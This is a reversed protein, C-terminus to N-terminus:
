ASTSKQEAINSLSSEMNSSGASKEEMHQSVQPPPSSLKPADDAAAFPLTKQLLGAIQEVYRKYLLPVTDKDGKGTFTARQLRKTVLEVRKELEAPEKLRRSVCSHAFCHSIGHM